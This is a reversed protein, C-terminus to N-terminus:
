ERSDDRKGRFRHNLESIADEASQSVNLEGQYHPHQLIAPIVKEIEQFTVEILDLLHVTPTNKNLLFSKCQEFPIKYSTELILSV